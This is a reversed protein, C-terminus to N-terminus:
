PAAGRARRARSGRRQEDIARSAAAAVARVIGREIRLGADDTERKALEAGLLRQEDRMRPAREGREREREAVGVVERSEHEDIREAVGVRGNAGGIRMQADHAADAREDRWHDSAGHVVGRQAGLEGGLGNGEGVVSTGSRSAAAM